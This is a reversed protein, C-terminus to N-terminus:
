AEVVIRSGDPWVHPVAVSGVASRLLEDTITFSPGVAEQLDVRASTMAEDIAARLKDEWSLAVERAFREDEDIRRLAEAVAEYRTPAVCGHDGIMLSSGDSDFLM